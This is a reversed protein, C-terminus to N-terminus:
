AWKKGDFRLDCNVKLRCLNLLRESFEPLLGSCIFDLSIEVSTISLVPLTSLKYPDNFVFSTSFHQFNPTREFLLVLNLSCNNLGLISLHSISSSM